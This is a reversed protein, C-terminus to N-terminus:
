EEPGSHKNRRGIKGKLKRTIEKGRQERGTVPASGGQGLLGSAQATRCRATTGCSATNTHQGQQQAENSTKQQFSSGLQSQPSWKESDLHVRVCHGALLAWVGHLLQLCCPDGAFYNVHRSIGSTYRFTMQEMM